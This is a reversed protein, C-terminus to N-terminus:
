KYIEYPPNKPVSLTNDKVMKEVTSLKGQGLLQASFTKSENSVEVLEKNLKDIKIIADGCSYRLGIKCMCFVTFILFYPVTKQPLRGLLARGTLVSGISSGTHSITSKSYDTFEKANKITNKLINYM